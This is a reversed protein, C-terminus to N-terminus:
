KQSGSYLLLEPLSQFGLQVLHVGPGWGTLLGVHLDAFGVGNAVCGDHGRDADVRQVLRKIVLTVASSLLASAQHEWIMSSRGVGGSLPTEGVVITEQSLLVIVFLVFDPFM